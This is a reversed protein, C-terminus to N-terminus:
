FQQRMGGIYRSVLQDELDALDVRAVLQYFERTYEHIFQTGQKLNHLQEYLTHIYNHPLFTARMHKLFIEWTNIKSKGQRIRSQKLQQWWAAAHGRFKTAVLSVRKDQPM